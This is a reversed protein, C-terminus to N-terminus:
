RLVPSVAFGSVPALWQGHLLVSWWAFRLGLCLLLAVFAQSVLLVASYTVWSAGLIKKKDMPDVILWGAGRFTRVLTLVMHM